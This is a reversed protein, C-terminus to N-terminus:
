RRKLTFIHSLFTQFAQVGWRSRAKSLVSYKPVAVDLDNGGLFWLWDLRVPITAM